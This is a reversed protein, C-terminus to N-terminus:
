PTRVTTSVPLGKLLNPIEAQWTVREETNTRHTAVFSLVQAVDYKTTAREPAGPVRGLDRTPKETAPGSAFPDTIEVDTGADCIHFVRVAAKKGWQKSVANNVWTAISEISVPAAQWRKLRACDTRAAEFASQIRTPIAALDLRQGHRERITIKTEGIVLGNSCVSRFWGFLIVLKAWGDVANFCELTLDLTTEHIGTFSYIGPCYIRFHMWEDLASLGVEYRLDGPKIGDANILGQRCLAAVERHPALAYTHSVVGIPIPRETALLPKRRVTRLFPNGPEDQGATFPVLDFEPLVTQLSAWDGAYYRVPRSRWSAERPLIAVFPSTADGSAM